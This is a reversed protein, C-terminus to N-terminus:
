VPVHQLYVSSLLMSKPSTFVLFTSRFTMRCIVDREPAALITMIELEEYGGRDQRPTLSLVSNGQRQQISNSAQCPRVSPEAALIALTM